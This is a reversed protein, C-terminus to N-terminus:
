AKWEGAQYFEEVVDLLRDPGDRIVDVVPLGLEKELRSSLREAEMPNLKRGNMAFGLTRCPQYISGMTEFLLQQQRLGPLVVHELGGVTERGAEFVFVLGHPLCGHLLGLTVASYSPHVLSGQGEVVIIEHHQNDLVLREAAGSVFDAVICDIPLGAGSVMIGTQGTAVFQADRGRAALGRALELSVVMKGVSCDHGVTHIRLCSPNLGTRKAIDRFNNKRVDTVQVGRANAAQMIEPDSSLFDHLGSLINMGREIAQLVVSKWAAPIKGGPPAIGIM